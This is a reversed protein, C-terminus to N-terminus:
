MKGAYKLAKYIIYAVQARTCNDKPKFTGDSMGSVIGAERLAAVAERAYESIETKDIFEVIGSSPLLTDACLYRYILVAMDQRTINTGKGFKEPSIGNVMGSNFASVVYSYCWDDPSIDKFPITGESTINFAGVAMKVFEERKVYDTPCFKNNGKGSVIGAQALSEIATQAWDVSDLDDFYNTQPLSVFPTSIAASSGSGKGPAPSNSSSNSSNDMIKIMANELENITKYAKGAIQKDYNYTNSTNFYKNVNASLMSKNATLIKNIDSASGAFEIDALFVANEFLETFKSVSEINSGILRGAASRQYIDNEKSFAIYKENQSIGLTVANEIIMNKADEDDSASPVAKLFAIKTFETRFAPVDSVSAKIGYLYASIDSIADSDLTKIMSYSVGLKNCNDESKIIDTVENSSPADKFQAFIEAIEEPKYWAITKRTPESLNEGHVSITYVGPPNNDHMPIEVIYKGDSTYTNLLYAVMNMIEADTADSLSAIDIGPKILQISYKCKESFDGSIKINGTNVDEEISDIPAAYVATSLMSLLCIVSIIKRKM